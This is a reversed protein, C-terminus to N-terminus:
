RKGPRCLLDGCRADPGGFLVLNALDLMEYKFRAASYWLGPLQCRFIDGTSLESWM